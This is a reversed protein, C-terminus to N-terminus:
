VKKRNWPSATLFFWRIGLQLGVATGIVIGTLYADFLTM